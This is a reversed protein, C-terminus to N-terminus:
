GEIRRRTIKMLYKVDPYYQQIMECLDPDIDALGELSLVAGEERCRAIFAMEVARRSFGADPRRVSRRMLVEEGSARRGINKLNREAIARYMPDIDSIVFHRGSIRAAIATTGAGGFPDFVLDGPLTAMEIIRQMLPIPLQCPHPDRDRIHKIRHIDHWVDTLLEKRDDGARKRRNVCAARLCYERSEITVPTGPLTPVGGPKTYYLLAYHAPLLKGSPTSLANWVIWNRFEMRGNLFDAHYVAWKPINLVFLAGGPRLVDCMLDLWKNCWAIYDEETHLDSYASYNKALNYPPDAFALDFIGCPHNRAYDRMLALSDAHLVRDMVPPQATSQRCARKCAPTSEPPMPEQVAVLMKRSPRATLDAIRRLCSGPIMGADRVATGIGSWVDSVASGLPNILHSKGGWDKTVKGCAACYRYPIRVTKTNLSFPTPYAPSRTKLYMLLGMHAHPLGEKPLDPELELGIWYKFLLRHEGDFLANLRVALSPLVGPFGYVFLLGGDKLLRSADSLLTCTTGIRHIYAASDGPVRCCDLEDPDVYTAVVVVDFSGPAYAHIDSSRCLEGVDGAQRADPIGSAVANTHM